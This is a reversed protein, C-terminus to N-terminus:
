PDLEIMVKITDPHGADAYEYAQVSQDFAFTKSIFRKVDIKGSKVLNIARDFCNAYRFIGEIRIGLGQLLVVPIPVPEMMMGVLVAHGGRKACQLFAPYVQPNGSAEFLVDCGQGDTEKQIFEQLNVSGTNIPIINKNYAAAIELKEQKVDTIFVKSCGGALASVACMVGITGCGIVLGTDGPRIEAKKAAEVGIALPEMMAGEAVTMGQPLKFCFQAPHVVTERLCGHVPPTAWFVVQPDLNYIGELVQRSWQQPIGPEMCVLDGVELGTVKSGKAIVTGAAEHGLIMSSEEGSFTKPGDRYFHVDSGCIGCAGIKIQVDTSGLEEDLPYDRLSLKKKSELVLAKM